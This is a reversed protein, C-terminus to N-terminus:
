DIKINTKILEVVTQYKESLPKLTEILRSADEAGIPKSKVITNITELTEFTRWEYNKEIDLKLIELYSLLYGRQGKERHKEAKAILNEKKLDKYDNELKDFKSQLQAFKATAIKEIKTDLNLLADNITQHNEDKLEIKIKKISDHLDDKIVDIKNANLIFNQYFNLAVIASFIAGVLAITWYISNLIKTNIEELINLKFEIEQSTLSMNNTKAYSSLGSLLTIFLIIFLTSKLQKM